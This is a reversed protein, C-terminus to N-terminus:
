APGRAAPTQRQLFASLVNAVMNEVDREGLTLKNTAALVAIGHTSLFLDLFVAKAREPDLDLARAFAAAKKENGREKYFDQPRHLALDMDSIFLLRFLNPEQRAFEVYSLPLLLGPGVGSGARYAAVYREYYEYAFALFESKLQEMNEYCTFLPRTSCRLKGAISRANVAEFGAQRTLELATDLIMQRTIKAKPPM